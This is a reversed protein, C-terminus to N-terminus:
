PEATLSTSTPTVSERFTVSYSRSIANPSLGVVNGRSFTMYVPRNAALMGEISSFYKELLIRLLERADGTTANATYGSFIATPSIAPM